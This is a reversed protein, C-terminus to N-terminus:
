NPEEDGDSEISSLDIEPDNVRRLRSVPRVWVQEVYQVSEDDTPPLYEEDEDYEEDEEEEEKEEEVDPAVWETAYEVRRTVDYLIPQCNNLLCDHQIDSLNQETQSPGLTRKTCAHVLNAILVAVFLGMITFFFVYEASKTDFDVM